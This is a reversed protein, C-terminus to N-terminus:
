LHLIRPAVLMVKFRQWEASTEQKRCQSIHTDTHPHSHSTSALTSLSGTHPLRSVNVLVRWGQRTMSSRSVPSSRYLASSLGSSHTATDEEATNEKMFGWVCSPPDQCHKISHHQDSSTYPYLQSLTGLIRQENVVLPHKTYIPLPLSTITALVPTLIPSLIQMYGRIGWLLSVCM